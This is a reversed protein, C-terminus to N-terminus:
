ETRIYVYWQTYNLKLCVGCKCSHAWLFIPDLRLHHVLKEQWPITDIWMLAVHICLTKLSLVGQLGCSDYHFIDSHILSFNLANGMINIGKKGRPHGSVIYRGKYEFRVPGLGLGQAFISNRQLILRVSVKVPLCSTWACTNFFIHSSVNIFSLIFQILM